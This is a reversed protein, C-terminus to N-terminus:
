ARAPRQWIVRGDKYVTRVRHLPINHVLGDADRLSFTRPREPDFGIDVFAVVQEERAVRDYYALAFDGRGFVPDWRIRHLLDQLPQV